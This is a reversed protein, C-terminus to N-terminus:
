IVISVGVLAAAALSAAAVATSASSEKTDTSLTDKATPDTCVDEKEEECTTDKILEAVTFAKPSTNCLQDECVGEYDHLAKEAADPLQMESCTDHAMLIRQIAAVCKADGGCKAVAKGDKTCPAAKMTAVAANVAAVDACDKKADWKLETACVKLDTNFARKILCDGYGAEFDHFGKEWTEDLQNHLCHDHHAQFIQFNKKCDASTRAKWAATTEAGEKKCKNAALNIFDWAAKIKPNPKGDVKTCDIAWGGEAAECVCPHVSAHSHGPGGGTGTAAPEIDKKKSDYLYHTDREFETPVHATYVALGKLGTSDITFTTDCKKDNVTLTFCSGAAAPTMKEGDKVAPCKKAAVLANAAASQADLSAKDAKDVPILVVTMEPDAYKGKVKQMLWTHTTDAM